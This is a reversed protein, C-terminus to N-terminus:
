SRTRCTRRSRHRGHPRAGQGASAAGADRLQRRDHARRRTRRLPVRVRRRRRRRLEGEAVPHVGSAVGDESLRLARADRRARRPRRELHRLGGTAIARTPGLADLVFHIGRSCTCSCTARFAPATTATTAGASCGSRISRGSRRAARPVSGLRDDAALRRASDLVALRGDRLQPQDVSRRPQARRDRRRPLAGEGKRLRDLEVHQSGVQLIRGTQRAADVIRPGDDLKQVM